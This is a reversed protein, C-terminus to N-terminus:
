LLTLGLYDFFHLSSVELVVARIQRTAENNYNSLESSRASVDSTSLSLETLAMKDIIRFGPMIYAKSVQSYAQSIRSMIVFRLKAELAQDRVAQELCRDREQQDMEVPIELQSVFGGDGDINGKLLEVYDSIKTFFILM